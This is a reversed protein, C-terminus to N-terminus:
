LEGLARGMPGGRDGDEGTGLELCFWLRTHPPVGHWGLRLVYLWWRRGECRIRNRITAPIFFSSCGGCGGCGCSTCLLSGCATLDRLRRHDNVTVAVEKMDQGWGVDAKGVVEVVRRTPHVKVGSLRGEAYRARLRVRGCRGRGCGRWAVAGHWLFTSRSAPQLPAPGEHFSM